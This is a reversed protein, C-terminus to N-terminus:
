AGSTILVNESQVRAGPASFRRALWERLDALGETTSYQLAQGGVGDLVQTLASKVRDVPFLEAAPLGGAFSIMDPRANTKLLERLANSSMLATRRAFCRSWDMEPETNM